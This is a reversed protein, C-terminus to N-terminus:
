TFLNYNLCLIVEAVIWREPRQLSAATIEKVTPELVEANV